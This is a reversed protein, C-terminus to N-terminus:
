NFPLGRRSPMNTPTHLCFFLQARRKIFGDMMTAALRVSQAHPLSVRPRGVHVPSLPAATPLCWLHVRESGIEALTFCKRNEGGSAGFPEHCLPKKSWPEKMSIMCGQAWLTTTPLALHACKVSTSSSIIYITPNENGERVKSDLQYQKM